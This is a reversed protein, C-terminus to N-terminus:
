DDSQENEEGWMEKLDDFLLRLGAEANGSAIEQAEESYKRILGDVEDETMGVENMLLGKCVGVHHMNHRMENIVSEKSLRKDM